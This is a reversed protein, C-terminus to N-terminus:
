GRRLASLRATPFPPGAAPAPPQLVAPDPEYDSALPKRALAALLLLVGHNLDLVPAALELALFRCRLEALGRQKTLQVSAAM